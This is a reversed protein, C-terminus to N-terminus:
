QHNLTIDAVVRSDPSGTPNVAYFSKDQGAGSRDPQTEASADEVILDRSYARLDGVTQEGIPEASAMLLKVGPDPAHENVLYPPTTIDM